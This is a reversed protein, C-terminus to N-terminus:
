MKGIRAEATEVLGQVLESYEAMQREAADIALYVKRPIMVVKGRQIQFRQGNVIVVLDDKYDGNDKIAKFPIRQELWKAPTMAPDEEPAAPVAKAVAEELAANKGELIAVYAMIEDPTMEALNVSKPEVVPENKKAM